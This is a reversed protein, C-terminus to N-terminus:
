ENAAAQAYIAGCALVARVAWSAGVSAILMM